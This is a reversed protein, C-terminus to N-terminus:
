AFVAVQQFKCMAVKYVTGDGYAVKSFPNIDLCTVEIATKGSIFNLLSGPMAGSNTRIELTMGDAANLAHMRDLFLEADAKTKFYIDRCVVYRVVKM